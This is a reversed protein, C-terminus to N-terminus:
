SNALLQISSSVCKHFAGVEDSCLLPQNKNKKFCQIVSQKSNVCTDEMNKLSVKSFFADADALTEGYGQEFEKDVNSYGQQLRKLRNEWGANNKAIEKEIEKSIQRSTVYVTKESEINGSVNSTQDQKWRDIVNQSIELISTDDPNDIVMERSGSQSSGM